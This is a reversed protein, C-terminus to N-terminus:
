GRLEEAGHDDEARDPCPLHSGTPCPLERGTRTAAAARFLLACQDSPMLMQIAIKIDLIEVPDSPSSDEGKDGVAIGCSEHGFIWAPGASDIWGELLGNTLRSGSRGDSRAATFARKRGGREDPRRSRSLAALKQRLLMTMIPSLGLTAARRTIIDTVM